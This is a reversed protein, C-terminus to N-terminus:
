KSVMNYCVRAAEEDPRCQLHYIETQSILHSLTAHIGDAYLRNWKITSVSPAITAYASAGKLRKISNEPSQSLRIIGGLPLRKNQYCPTKGSWPTGYIFAGEEHLRIVPNDDNLLSTGEIYKLWLQSHTSKGTGSRGLFAYAYHPCAIASAHILLTNRCATSM